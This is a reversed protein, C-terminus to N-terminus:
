EYMSPKHVNGSRIEEINNELFLKVQTKEPKFDYALAHDHAYGSLVLNQDKTIYDPLTSVYCSFLVPGLISGQTLSHNIVNVASISYSIQVLFQRNELYSSIWKLVTSEFGFCNEMILKLIHDNVTEFAVSLDLCIMATTM